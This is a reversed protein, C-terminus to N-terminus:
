RDVYAGATRMGVCSGTFGSEEFIGVYWPRLAASRLLIRGGLKLVKNLALVQTKAAPSTPDFWDMSDM